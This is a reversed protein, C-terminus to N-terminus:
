RIRIIVINSPPSDLGISNVATVKYSYAARRSVAKDLYATGASVWAIQVYGGGSTSRYIRNAVIEPSTSQKWTLQVAGSLAKATM